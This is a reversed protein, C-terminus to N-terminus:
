VVFVRVGKAELMRKSDRSLSDTVVEGILLARPKYTYQYLFMYGLVQGLASFSADRKVEIILIENRSFGVVDIRGQTLETAMKRINEPWSEELEVGDGVKVDYEYKEAHFPYETLFRKWIEIDGPFMHPYKINDEKAM